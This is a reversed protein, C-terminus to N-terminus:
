TKRISGTLTNLTSLDLAHAKLSERVRTRRPNQVKTCENITYVYVVNIAINMIRGGTAEAGVLRIATWSPGM